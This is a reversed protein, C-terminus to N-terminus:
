VHARGIEKPEPKAVAEENGDTEEEVGDTERSEDSEIVSVLNEGEADAEANDVHSQQETQGAEQETEQEIKQEEGKEGPAGCGTILVACFVALGVSMRKAMDSKRKM